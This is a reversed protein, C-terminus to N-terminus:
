RRFLALGQEVERVQCVTVSGNVGVKSGFGASDTSLRGAEAEGQQPPQRWIARTRGDLSEWASM